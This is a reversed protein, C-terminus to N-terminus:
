TKCKKGTHDMMALIVHDLRSCEDSLHTLENTISEGHQYRKEVTYLHRRLTTLPDNLENILKKATIDATRIREVALQETQLRELHKMYFCIAAHNALLQLVVWQSDSEDAVGDTLGILLLGQVEKKYVMPVGLMGKTGLLRLLRADLPRVPEKEAETTFVHLRQQHVLANGPLSNSYQQPSFTLSNFQRSLQSNPATVGVLDGSQRDLVMILFTSCNFLRKLGEEVAPLVQEPGEAALLRNYLNSMQLVKHNQDASNRCVDDEQSHVPESVQRDSTRDQRSIHIGLQDALVGIQEEVGDYLTHVQQPSLGFLRDAAELCSENSTGTCYSLLDALYAIRTLPLAQEVEELSHHHYRIADTLLVPLRWEECLWAGAACHNINFKKEELLTLHHNQLHSSKHFFPAYTEPFAVWLLLKGIDHLLGALYAESPNNFATTLAINRAILANTLSHYWFQSISVQGNSKVRQFVQQVSLSIVLNRVTDAGLYVVAQEVNLFSRRAGIFASNALQLLKASITTDKDIIAAIESLDTEPEYCKDILQVLVQPM